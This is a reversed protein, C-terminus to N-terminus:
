RPHQGAAAAAAATTVGAAADFVSECYLPLRDIVVTSESYAVTEAAFLLSRTCATCAHLVASVHSQPSRGCCGCGLVRVDRVLAYARVRAIACTTNRTAAATSVTM